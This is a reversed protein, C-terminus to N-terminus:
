RRRVLTHTNTSTTGAAPHSSTGLERLPEMASEKCLATLDSGSYGDTLHALDDLDRDSLAVHNNRILHKILHRRGDAGPLPVYIRKVLRRRAAEDLDEPRNTAGPFHSLPIIILWRVALRLPYLHPAAYGDCHSARRPRCLHRWRISHPIREEVKAVGRARLQEQQALSSSPTLQLHGVSCPLPLSCSYRSSLLSDIEDIFIISPQRANAVAFLARM